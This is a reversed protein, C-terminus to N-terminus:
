VIEEKGPLEVIIKTGQGPTTHVACRGHLEGVREQMSKLGLGHHNDDPAFGTGNDEITLRTRQELPALALTIHTASAHRVANSLAEQTIRLLAHEAEPSLSVATIDATITIELRENYSAVLDKLAEALGLQELSVPRIELLLARMEQITRSTTDELMAVQSQCASNAPLADQLGYALIRLAFLDQSIADHLERSIRTREAMRANQEALERQLRTSEVLQDAMANFDHEMQGLEDQQRTQVRQQHDGQAFHTMVDALHRIRRVQGRTTLLGFLSGIPTTILLVVLIIGVVIPWEDRFFLLINTGDTVDKQGEGYFVGIPQGHKGWIPETVYLTNPLKKAYVAAGRLATNVANVQQSSLLASFPTNIPHRAPYSSAVVRGSPAILLAFGAVQLNPNKDAIYPIILNEFLSTRRENEGTVNGGPPQLTYAQGPEFTSRPNLTIGDSQLSAAYAYQVGTKQAQSLDAQEAWINIVFVLFLGGLMVVLLVLLVTMWVYSITMKVWLGSRRPWRISLLQESRGRTSRLVPHHRDM